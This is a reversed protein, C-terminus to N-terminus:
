KVKYLSLSATRSIYDNMPQKKYTQQSPMLGAVKPYRSSARALPATRVPFFKLFSQLIFRQQKHVRTMRSTPVTLQIERGSAM